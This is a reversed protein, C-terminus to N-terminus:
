KGRKNKSALVFRFHGTMRGILSGDDRMLFAREIEENKMHDVINLGRQELFADLSDEDISFLLAEDEHHEKMTQAFEEAGYYADINEESLPITYDFAIASEDHANHSVFELTADVSM